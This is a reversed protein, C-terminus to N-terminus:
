SVAGEYAGINPAADSPVPAGGCDQGGTLAVRVGARIAPSGCKLRYGTWDTGPATFLPDAKVAHLDGAPVQDINFYLNHDFTSVPDTITSGGPRGYFINNRYSVVSQGYNGILAKAVSSYVVNNYFSLNTMTVGCGNFVVPFVAGNYVADHDNQSINYRVTVGDSFQGPATCFALFGGGNDHSYNYQYVVDQNSGDADFAMMPPSSAGHSVDNYEMVSHDANWVWVGSHYATARLGFGDVVNHDILPSVANQVVIGDGGMDALRNGTVRVNTMPVFHNTGTPFLDRKSWQSVTAIGYGETTTVTSNAVRIGDFTTPTTSGAAKFVIGGSAEDIPGTSDVSTVDHVNVNEVVYHSGTGYDTLLVYIGTRVTGDQAAKNSVDLNRIEWGQSNQLFVAARAGGGTIAARATGGYSGITVPRDATGSGLPALQGACTTGSRLLISDGPRFTVGDVKALSHWAATATTGAAADNGAACDVYYQHGTTDAHAAPAAVAAPAAALALGVVARLTGGLFGPRGPPRGRRVGTRDGALPNRISM